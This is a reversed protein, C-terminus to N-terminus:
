GREAALAELAEASDADVVQRAVDYSFGARALAALDRDRRDRRQAAPRFPGLRRRRALALGAALDPDAAAEELAALAADALEADVGKEGLRARILRQSAGRRHLSRARAEAYARDDLLGSACLRRLLDEVAAAGEAPDTGHAQASRMVRRMLLRRLNETSTAYRQLYFLAANELRKPTAPRPGRRRQPPGARAPGSFADPRNPKDSM